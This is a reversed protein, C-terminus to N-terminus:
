KKDSSGPKTIPVGNRCLECSDADWSPVDLTLLPIFTCGFDVNGGSRDVIAGIAAVEIGKENLCVVVEKISGGTTVIDEIVAVSRINQLDFGSRITMQEDKRQTFIFQKGMLRAVEFALAIGGYAPGVVADFDYASLQEALHRCLIAASAPNQLIRIKEIYRGSHRGSTLVFHGELLAGAETLLSNVVFGETYADVIRRADEAEDQAVWLEIKFMDGAFTSYISNFIENKLEVRIGNEELLGKALDAEFVNTFTKLIVYNDTM